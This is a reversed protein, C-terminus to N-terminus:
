DHGGRLEENVGKLNVLAFGVERLEFALFAAIRRAGDETLCPLPHAANLLAANLVGAFRSESLTPVDICGALTNVLVSRVPV